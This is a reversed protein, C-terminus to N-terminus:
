NIKIKPHSLVILPKQGFFVRVRNLTSIVKQQRVIKLELTRLRPIDLLMLGVLIVVLGQGPIFLLLFGLIICFIGAIQQFLKLPRRSIGGNSLAKNGVLKGTLFYDEPLLVLFGVALFSSAFFSGTSILVWFLTESNLVDLIGVKNFLAPM